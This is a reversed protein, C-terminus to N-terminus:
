LSLFAARVAWHFVAAHWSVHGVCFCHEDREMWTVAEPSAKEKSRHFWPLLSLATVRAEQDIRRIASGPAFDQESAFVANSGSSRLMLQTQLLKLHDTGAFHCVIGRRAFLLDKGSSPDLFELRSRPVWCNEGSPIHYIGWISSPLDCWM